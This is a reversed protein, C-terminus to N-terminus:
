PSAPPDLPGPTELPLWSGTNGVLQTTRFALQQVGPGQDKILSLVRSTGWIDCPSESSLLFNHVQVHPSALHYIVTLVIIVSGHTHPCCCPVSQPSQEGSLRQACFTCSDSPLQEHWDQQQIDINSTLKLSLKDLKVVMHREPQRGLGVVVSSSKCM